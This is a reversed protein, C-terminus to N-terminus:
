PVAVAIDVGPGPISSSEDDLTGNTSGSKGHGRKSKAKPQSTDPTPAIGPEETRAPLKDGKKAGNVPYVPKKKKKMVSLPNPQKPGRAKKPKPAPEKDAGNGANAVERDADDDAARKRKRDGLGLLGEKFKEREVRRRVGLSAASLEELTMVSRKVYVIPVGPIERARARIDDAGNDAPKRKNKPADKDVINDATALVFHQKNRKEQGEKNRAGGSLLDLLCEIEPLVDDPGVDAHRCHRLPLDAPPPLFTPRQSTQLNTTHLISALTCRTIFPKVAGHLTNRLYQQLPMSFSHLARLHLSDVASYLNALPLFVPHLLLTGLVQYPERFGFNLTYQQIIKRYKKSRKARM